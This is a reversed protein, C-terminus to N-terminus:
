RTTAASEALVRELSWRNDAPGAAVAPRTQITQQRRRFNYWAACLAFMAEHNGTEQERVRQELERVRFSLDADRETSIRVSQPGAVATWM